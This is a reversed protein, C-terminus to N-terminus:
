HFVREKGDVLLHNINMKGIPNMLGFNPLQMCMNDWDDTDHSLALESLESPVPIIIEADDRVKGKIIPNGVIKVNKM